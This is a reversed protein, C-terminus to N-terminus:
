IAKLSKTADKSLYYKFMLEKSHKIKFLVILILFLILFDM